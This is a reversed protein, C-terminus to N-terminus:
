ASTCVVLQASSGAAFAIALIVCIQRSYRSAAGQRRSIGAVLDLEVTIAEKNTALCHTCDQIDQGPASADEAPM